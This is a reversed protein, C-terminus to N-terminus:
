LLEQEEVPRRDSRPLFLILGPVDFPLTKVFDVEVEENPVAEVTAVLSLLINLRMEDM